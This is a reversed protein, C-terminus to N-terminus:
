EATQLAKYKLYRKEDTSLEFDYNYLSREWDGYLPNPLLIWATAFRETLHMGLRVRESSAPKGIFAFDNFEDGIMCVVRHSGCVLARRSSKDSGWEPREGKCMVVEESVPIRLEYALNKITAEELDATRNTIFFIKIGREQAYQIFQSAGPMVEAKAEMVWEAWATENYEIGREILRAQFPANSLVTEDVDMIIAPPLESFDGSQEIAATRKTDELREDVCLKALTYAQRCAFSYELSGQIWLTADLREDTTDMVALGDAIVSAQASDQARVESPFLSSTFAIALVPLCFKLGFVRLNNM